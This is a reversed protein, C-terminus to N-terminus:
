AATSEEQHPQAKRVNLAILRKAVTMKTQGDKREVVCRRSRKDVRRVVAHVGDPCRVRQGVALTVGNGDLVPPLADLQERTFRERSFRVPTGTLKALEITRLRVYERRHRAALAHLAALEAALEAPAEETTM